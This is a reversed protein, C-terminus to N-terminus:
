LKKVKGAGGCVPCTMMGDFPKFGGGQFEVRGQGNCRPCYQESSGGCGIALLAAFLLVMIKM